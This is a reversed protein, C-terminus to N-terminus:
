LSLFTTEKSAILLFDQLFFETDKTNELNIFKRRPSAFTILLQYNCQKHSAELKWLLLVGTICPKDKNCQQGLSSSLNETEALKCVLESAEIGGAPHWWGLNQQTGLPHLSLLRPQQLEPHSIWNPCPWGTNGPAAQISGPALANVRPQPHLSVAMASFLLYFRRKDSGAGALWESPVQAASRSQTWTPRQEQTFPHSTHPPFLLGQHITVTKM